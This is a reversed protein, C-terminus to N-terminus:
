IYCHRCTDDRDSVNILLYYNFMPSNPLEKILPLQKNGEKADARHLLVFAESARTGEQFLHHFLRSASGQLIRIHLEHASYHDKLGSVILPPLCLTGVNATDTNSRIKM